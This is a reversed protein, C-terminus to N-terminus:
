MLNGFAIPHPKQADVQPGEPTRPDLKLGAARSHAKFRDGQIQVQHGHHLYLILLHDMPDIMIRHNILYIHIYM